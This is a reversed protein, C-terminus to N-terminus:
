LDEVNSRRDEVWSPDSGVRSWSPTGASENTLTYAFSPVECDSIVDGNLM